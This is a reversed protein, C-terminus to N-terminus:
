DDEDDESEDKKSRRKGFEQTAKEITTAGMFAVLVPVLSEAIRTNDCNGFLAQHAIIALCFLCVIFRRSNYWKAM